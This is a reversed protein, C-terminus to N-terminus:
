CKVGKWNGMRLPLRERNNEQNILLTHIRLTSSEIRNLEDVLRGAANSHYIEKSGLALQLSNNNIEDLYNQIMAFESAYLGNEQGYYADPLDDNFAIQKMYLSQRLDKLYIINNKIRNYDAPEFTDGTYLGTEDYSISWNIKPTIWESM